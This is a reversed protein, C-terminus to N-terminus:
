HGYHTIEEGHYTTTDPQAARYIFLAWRWLGAITLIAAVAEGATSFQVSGHNGTGVTHTFGPGGQLIIFKFGILGLLLWVVQFTMFKQLQSYTIRLKLQRATTTAARIAAWSAGWILLGVFCVDGLYLWITTAWITKM